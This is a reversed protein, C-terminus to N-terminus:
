HDYEYNQINANTTDVAGVRQAHDQLWLRLTQTKTTHATDRRTVTTTM